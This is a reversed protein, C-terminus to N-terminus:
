QDVGHTVQQLDAPYVAAVDRKRINESVCVRDNQLGVAPAVTFNKEDTFFIFDVDFPSFQRSIKKAHILRSECDSSDPEQARRRNVCKLHLDRRSIRYV